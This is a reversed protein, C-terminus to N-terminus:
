QKTIATDEPSQIIVGDPTIYNFHYQNKFKYGFIYVRVKKEDATGANFIFNRYKHILKMGDKWPIDIRAIGNTFIMAELEVQKIEGVQHFTSDDPNFQLLKEGNKYIAEWKWAEEPIDVTKGDKDNFKYTMNQFIFVGTDPTRMPM